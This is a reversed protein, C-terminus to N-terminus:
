RKWFCTTSLPLLGTSRELGASQAKLDCSRGNFIIGEKEYREIRGQDALVRVKEKGLKGTFFDAYMVGLAGLGVIDISEIKM